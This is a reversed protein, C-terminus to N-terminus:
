PATLYAVLRPNDRLVALWCSASCTIVHEEKEQSPPATRIVSDLDTNYHIAHTVEHLLVERERQPNMDPDLVIECDVGAHYGLLDCQRKMAESHLKNKDFLVAYQIGLVKITKPPKM